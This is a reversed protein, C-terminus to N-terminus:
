DASSPTFRRLAPGTRRKPPAHERMARRSPAQLAYTGFGGGLNEARQLAALGRRILSSGVERADQDLLLIPEGSPGTARTLAVGPNGDAGCPWSSRSTRFSSRWRAVLRLSKACRPRM